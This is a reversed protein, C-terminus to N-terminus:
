RWLDITVAKTARDVMAKRDPHEEDPSDLDVMVSETGPAVMVSVCAEVVGEHTV